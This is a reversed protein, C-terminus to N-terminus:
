SFETKAHIIVQADKKKGIHIAIASLIIFFLNFVIHQKWSLYQIVGGCSCPLSVGSAIMVTLYVTFTILLILSAYLGYLRLKKMLLFLVVALETIPLAWSIFQAAYRIFPFIILQDIFLAHNLLKAFGTYSFLLVLLGAIIEIVISKKM